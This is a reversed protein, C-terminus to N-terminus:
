NSDIAVDYVKRNAKEVSAALAAEATRGGAAPLECRLSQLTIASAVEGAQEGGMGDSVALLVGYSGVELAIPEATAHIPIAQQLDAIVFAYEKRQEVRGSDSLGSLSLAVNKETM